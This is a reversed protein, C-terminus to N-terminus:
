KKQLGEALTSIETIASYMEDLLSQEGREWLGAGDTMPRDLIDLCDTLSVVRTKIIKEIAAEAAKMSVKGDKGISARQAGRLEGGTMPALEVSIQEAEPRDRNDNWKPVYVRVDEPGHTM